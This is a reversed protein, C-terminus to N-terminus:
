AWEEDLATAMLVSAGAYIVIGFATMWAAALVVLLMADPQSAAAARAWAAFALRSALAAAAMAAGFGMLAVGGHRLSRRVGAQVDGLSLGGRALVPLLCAGAALVLAELGIAGALHASSGLPRRPLDAIADASTSMAMGRLMVLPVGAILLRPLRQLTTVLAPLARMVRAHTALVASTGLALTLTLWNTWAGLQGLLDPLGILAAPYHLAEEGGLERLLPVLVPSLLPHAFGALGVAALAPLAFAALSVFALPPALAERSMRGSAQGAMVIQELADM